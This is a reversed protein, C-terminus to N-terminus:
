PRMAADFRLLNLQQRRPQHEIPSDRSSPTGSLRRARNDAHRPPDTPRRPRPLREAHYEHHRTRHRDHHRPHRPRLQRRTREAGLPRRHPRPPHSGARRHRPTPLQPRPGRITYRRNGLARRLRQWSPHEGQWIPMHMCVFTWRADAHDRLVTEFYDLQENSLNAPQTGEWDLYGELTHRLTVPDRRVRDEFDRLGQLAEPPLTFPPDQTDVILFLVDNFRFHFYRRGYRQEWVRAMTPTSVDHNGPVHFLPTSLRSLMTDLESWQREIEDLDDTYGEILDGLQIAFRPALLDTCALGREFVGPRAGGTRDSILVFNFWGPHADLDLRTWPNARSDVSIEFAPKTTM